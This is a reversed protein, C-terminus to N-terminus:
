LSVRGRSESGGRTTTAKTTRTRRPVGRARRPVYERSITTTDITIAAPCTPAHLTRPTSSQISNARASHTPTSCQINLALPPGDGDLSSRSHTNQARAHVQRRVHRARACTPFRIHTPTVYSPASHPPTYLMSATSASSTRPRSLAPTLVVSASRSPMPTCHPCHRTRRANIHTRRARTTQTSGLLTAYPSEPAYPRPDFLCHPPAREVDLLRQACLFTDTCSSPLPSPPPSPHLSLSSAISLPTSFPSPSYMLRQHVTRTGVFSPM